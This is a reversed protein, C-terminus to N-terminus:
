KILFLKKTEVNRLKKKSNQTSVFCFYKGSPLGCANWKIINKGPKLFQNDTKYVLEGTENYISILAKCPIESEILINVVESFPNPYPENDKITDSSYDVSTVFLNKINFIYPTESYAPKDPLATAWRVEGTSPIYQITQLTSSIGCSESLVDWLREITFNPNNNIQTVLGNYRYGPDPTYLKRFHNTSAIVSKPLETNESSTRVVTGKENNVEIVIASDNNSIANMSNIIFGGVTIQDNIAEFVDNTNCVGDSDYDSSEIGNRISFFIAHPKGSVNQSGHDGMHHFAGVGSENIGSLVGTLGPFGFSIWPQEDNESPIQITLLHNRILTQSTTWDLNRIYVLEGELNGDSETSKGWVALSSCGGFFIEVIINGCILDYEDADRGLLDTLEDAFETANIGDLIGRNEELYKEEITYNDRFMSKLTNFNNINNQLTENILYNGIVDIIKEALLFGYAYGREYHTGWIKIIKKGDVSTTDGNVEQAVSKSNCSLLCICIILLFIKIGHNM